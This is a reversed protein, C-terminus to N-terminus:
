PITHYPVVHYPLTQYPVARCRWGLFTRCGRPCGGRAPRRSPMTTRPTLGRWSRRWRLMWSGKSPLSSRSLHPSALTLPGGTLPWTPPPPHPPCHGPPGSSGHRAWQGRGFGKYIIKSCLRLPGQPAKPAELPVQPPWKSFGLYKPSWALLQTVVSAVM